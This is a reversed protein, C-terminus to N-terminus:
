TGRTVVLVYDKDGYSLERKNIYDSWKKRVVLPKLMVGPSLMVVHVMYKPEGVIKEGLTKHASPYTQHNPMIEWYWAM